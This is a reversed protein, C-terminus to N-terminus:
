ISKNVYIFIKNQSLIYLKDWINIELWMIKLKNAYLLIITGM